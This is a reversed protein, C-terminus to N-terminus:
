FLKNEKLVKSGITCEINISKNKKLIKSPGSHIKCTM